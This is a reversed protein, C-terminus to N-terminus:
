RARPWSWSPSDLANPTDFQMCAAWVNALREFGELELLSAAISSRYGSACVVTLPTSRSIGGIRRLLQPLPVHVAGVAHPHTLITANLKLRNRALYAIYNGVNREPDVVAAENGSAILYSAYALGPVFFREIHM